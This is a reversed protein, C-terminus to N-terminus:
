KLELKYDKLGEKPVEVTIESAEMSLYKAPLKVKPPPPPTGTEQGPIEVPLIPDYALWVKNSGIMAGDDPTRVSLSFTGDEAVRGTAPEPAPATACYFYVRYDELPQGEFTATGTV